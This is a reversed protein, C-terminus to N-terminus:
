ARPELASELLKDTASTVIVCDQRSWAEGEPPPHSHGKSWQAEAEDCNPLPVDRLHTLVICHVLDTSADTSALFASPALQLMYQLKRDGGLVMVWNGLPWCIVWRM